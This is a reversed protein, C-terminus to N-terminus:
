GRLPPPVRPLRIIFTSGHDPRSDVAISGHHQLIISRVTALGLGTGNEGKTTFYPEFLRSQVEPTMGCGTDRVACVVADTELDLRLTIVGPAPMADRANCCLNLLVQHMQGADGRLWAQGAPPELDIRIHAPLTAMFQGVVEQAVSALDIESIAAPEPRSVAILRRSLDAARKSAALIQEFHNRLRPDDVKIRAMETHGVVTSLLNNFDHGVAGAVRGVAELREADARRRQAEVLEATRERVRAELDANIAHLQLELRRNVIVAHSQRWILIILILLTSGTAVPDHPHVLAVVGLGSLAVTALIATTMRPNATTGAEAPKATAHWAAALGIAVLALAWGIGLYNGNTYTGALLQLAYAFDTAVLTVAGLALLRVARSDAGSGMRVVLDFSAWMLLMDGVPYAVTIIVPLLQIPRPLQGLSPSVVLTWQIAAAAIMVVLLDLIVPWRGGAAPRARPLQLIGVLILPYFLLYFFDASSAWPQTGTLSLIMWLVDGILWSASGLTLLLWARANAPSTSRRTAWIMALVVLVGRVVSLIDCAHVSWPDPHFAQLGVRALIVAGAVVMAMRWSSTSSAM